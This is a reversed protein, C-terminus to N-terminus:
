RARKAAKEREYMALQERWHTVCQAYSLGYVQGCTRVRDEAAELMRATIARSSLAHFAAVVADVDQM